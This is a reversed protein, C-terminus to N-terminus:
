EGDLQGSRSYASYSDLDSYIPYRAGHRFVEQVMMLKSLVPLMMVLVLILKKIM